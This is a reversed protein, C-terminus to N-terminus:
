PVFCMTYICKRGRASGLDSLLVHGCPQLDCAGRAAATLVRQSGLGCLRGIQVPLARWALRRALGTAASCALCREAQASSALSALTKRMVWVPVKRSTQSLWFVISSRLVSIQASLAFFLFSFIVMVFTLLPNAIIFTGNLLLVTFCSAHTSAIRKTISSIVLM